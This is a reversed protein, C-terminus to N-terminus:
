LIELPDGQCDGPIRISLDLYDSKNSPDIRAGGTYGGDFDDLVGGPVEVDIGRMSLILGSGKRAAYVLLTLSDADNPSTFGRAMYDRKSEVRKRGMQVSFQRGIIQPTLKSFDVEPGILFYGFEGWMRLSFWLESYLREYEEKCTKSDEFMLKQDSASQSFNVDYILSSWEYKLLDAVGTGAGTRDCAFYEPRVGARKNLDLISNKMAVTEGKPLVFSKYAQLGWRPTVAGSKDKFMVTHGNPHEISSPYKAGVARGWKGLTYVAEDGGELALDAAGVRIPEEYWIFEGRWKPWMGAPVVTAVTGAQPYVGRGMVLYGRGQRGGANKAIKELGVRNQLGPYIIKGSVVNESKEGDLRLVEWGRTSAWRFHVEPDLDQWGFPPEARKAVESYPDSPNYAGFIKFGEGGKEEIDSLVNDIDQWLGNPVNEIEDIFVILRSLPGFVPHPQPRPRRHGGQLAGAKKVNGKPIVVGKIASLQDRRSLGIFREGIEGPMPLTARRHLSVLHSFLNTELHTESPGVVRVSTYEPDRLWELFIRVGMGYSKGMKAAGMILGMDTEDYLRWVSKVSAPESTFQTPTWLIAAAEEPAGNELLDHVYLNLISYVDERKVNRGLTWKQQLTEFIAKAADIHQDKHVLAAVSLALNKAPGPNLM